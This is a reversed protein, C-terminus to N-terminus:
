DSTYDRKCFVAAQAGVCRTAVVGAQRRVGIGCRWVYAGVNNCREVHGGGGGMVGGGGGGGCLNAGGVLSTLGRQRELGQIVSVQRVLVDDQGPVLLLVCCLHAPPTPPPPTQPTAPGRTSPDLVCIRASQSHTHPPPCRM